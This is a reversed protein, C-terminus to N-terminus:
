YVPSIMVLGGRAAGSRRGKKSADSPESPAREFGFAVFRGNSLSIAQLEPWEAPLRGRHLSADSEWSLTAIQSGGDHLLAAASRGPAADLTVPHATPMARLSRPTVSDAHRINRRAGHQPELTAPHLSVPALVEDGDTTAIVLQDEGRLTAVVPGYRAVSELPFPTGVWTASPEGRQRLRPVWSVWSQLGHAGAERVGGVWVGRNQTWARTAHARNAEDVPPVKRYDVNRVVRGTEDILVVWPLEVSADPVQGEIAPGIAGLLWLANGEPEVGYVRGTVAKKGDPRVLPVEISQYAEEFCSWVRYMGAKPHESVGWVRGDPSMGVLGTSDKIACEQWAARLRDEGYTWRHIRVTRAARTAVLIEGNHAEALAVVEPAGDREEPVVVRAVALQDAARSDPNASAVLPAIGAVVLAILNHFCLTRLLTRRIAAGGEWGSSGDAALGVLTRSGRPACPEGTPLAAAAGDRTTMSRRGM